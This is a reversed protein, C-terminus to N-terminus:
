AAYRNIPKTKRPSTRKSVREAAENIPFKADLLPRKKKTEKKQKKTTEDKKERKKEAEKTEPTKRKKKTVKTVKDKPFPTRGRVEEGKKPQTKKKTKTSARNKSSKKKTGMTAAASVQQPLTKKKKPHEEEEEEDDDDDDDDDDAISRRKKSVKDKTKKSVKDKEERKKSSKKKGVALVEEEEDEEEEVGDDDKDDDDAISRRKKTAKDEDERKKYPKKKGVEQEEEEEEVEDDDEEDVKPITGSEARLFLECAQDTVSFSNKIVDSVFDENFIPPNNREMLDKLVQNIDGGPQLAPSVLMMLVEDRVSIEAKENSKEVFDKAFCTFVILRGLVFDKKDDPNYPIGIVEVAKKAYEDLNALLKAVKGMHIKKKGLENVKAELGRNQKANNIRTVLEKLETLQVMKHLLPLVNTRKFWDVVSVYTIISEDTDSFIPWTDIKHVTHFPKNKMLYDLYNGIIRKPYQTTLIRFLASSNAVAQRLSCADLQIPSYPCDETESVRTRFYVMGIMITNIYTKLWDPHCFKKVTKWQKSGAGLCSIIQKSCEATCQSWMVLLVIGTPLEWESPSIENVKTPKSLQNDLWFKDPIVTEIINETSSSVWQKLHDETPDSPLSVYANEPACFGIIDSLLAGPKM